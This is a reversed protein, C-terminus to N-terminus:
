EAGTEQEEADAEERAKKMRAMVIESASPYGCEKRIMNIAGLHCAEHWTYFTFLNMLTRQNEGPTTMEENTKEELAAQLEASVVTWKGLLEELSPYDKGESAPTNLFLHKYEREKEVGLAALAMCRYDYLHGLIWLISAGEGNRTRYLADKASLNEVVLSVNHDTFGFSAIFPQAITNM